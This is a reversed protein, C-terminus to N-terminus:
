SRVREGWNVGRMGGKGEKGPKMVTVRLAGSEPM